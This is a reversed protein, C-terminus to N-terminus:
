KGQEEVLEFDVVDFATEMAEDRSIGNIRAVASIYVDRHLYGERLVDSESIYRLKERRLGTILVRAFPEGPPKAWAPRTYCQHVAGVKVRVRKWIRRTQTKQGRLIPDVHEPKFLLM